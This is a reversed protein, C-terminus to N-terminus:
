RAGQMFHSRCCLGGLRDDKLLGSCDGALFAGVVRRALRWTRGIGLHTEWDTDGEKWVLGCAGVPTASRPSWDVKGRMGLLHGSTSAGATQVVQVIMSCDIESELLAESRNSNHLLVTLVLSAISCYHEGACYMCYAESVSEAPGVHVWAQAAQAWLAGGGVGGCM